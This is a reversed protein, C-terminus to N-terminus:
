KNGIMIMKKKCDLAKETAAGAVAKVFQKPFNPEDFYLSDGELSSSVSAVKLNNKTIHFEVNEGTQISYIDHGSKRLDDSLFHSHQDVVADEFGESKCMVPQFSHYMKSIAHKVIAPHSGGSLVKGKHVSMWYGGKTRVLKVPQGDLMGGDEITDIDDPQLNLSM